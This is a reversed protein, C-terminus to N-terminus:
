DSFKYVLGLSAMDVFDKDGVPDNVRYREAEIRMAFNDSFDFQLGIGYQYNVDRETSGSNLLSILGTGTQHNKAEIYNAGFLAYISVMESFPMIAQVDVSFGKMKTTSNFVGLPLTDLSFETTGMDFYAGELAFYPSTQYGLFIKYANDRNDARLNSTAYGSGLLEDGIKVNNFNTEAEGAAAGFYWGMDDAQTVPSTIAAMVAITLIRSNVAINKIAGNIFLKM